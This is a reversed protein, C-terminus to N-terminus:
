GGRRKSDRRCHTIAKSGNYQLASLKGGLGGFGGEIKSLHKGTHLEGPDSFAWRLRERRAHWAKM